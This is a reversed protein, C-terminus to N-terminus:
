WGRVAQWEAVTKANKSQNCPQCTLLLNDPNNSGGRSLPMVHDIHVDKPIDMFIRIGCYACRGDQDEYMQKIDIDTFRGEAAHLRALRRHTAARRKEPHNKGWTRQVEAMWGPHTERYNRNYDRLNDAKKKRYEAAKAKHEPKQQRIRRQTLHSAAYARCQVLHTKRYDSASQKARKANDRYWKKTHSKVCEKCIYALGDPSARRVHWYEPTPPFDRNCKKCHKLSTTNDPM